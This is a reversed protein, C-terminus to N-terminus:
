RLLIFIPTAYQTIETTCDTVTADWEIQVDSATTKATLLVALGNKLKDPTDWLQSGLICWHTKCVKNTNFYINGNNHSTISTIKETCNIAFSNSSFLCFMFFWFIKIM